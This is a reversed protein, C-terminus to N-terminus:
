FGVAAGIPIRPHFPLDDVVNFVYALGPQDMVVVAYRLWTNPEGDADHCHTKASGFGGVQLATNAAVAVTRSELLADDCAQYVSVTAVAEREGANYLGLNFRSSQAGADTGILVQRQGPAVLAQFVPMPFAGLTPSPNTPAGCPSPCEGHVGGRSAVVVGEPVDARVVWLAPYSDPEWVGWRRALSVTRGAPVPIKITENTRIHGNSIGVLRVAADQGTANHCVLDDHWSVSIGQSSSNFRFAWIEGAIAPQSAVLVSCGLWVLKGRRLM